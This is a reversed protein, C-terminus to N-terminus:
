KDKLFEEVEQRAPISISAGNRTVSIASAASAYRLAENVPRGEAICAVLYGTFTDGAATTDVAKVPFAEQTYKRGDCIGISGKKGLTLVINTDPYKDQMLKIIDEPNKKGTIGEGEVENLLLWTIKNYDILKMKEDMPSPNLVIKMGIEYAKDIIYGLNNIENQLVLYTDAGFSTLVQDIYATDVEHNSGAYIIICNEGNGNVQIIAHGQSVESRKMFSTNVKASKLCNELMESGKGFAGAHFVEKGAKSVAISQNLGKGGPFIHYGLAADTEGPQIFHRVQYVHDLNLSGMNLVKM